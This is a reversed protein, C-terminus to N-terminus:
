YDNERYDEEWEEPPKLKQGVANYYQGCNPCDCAYTPPFCMLIIEEGCDCKGVNATRERFGDFYKTTGTITM